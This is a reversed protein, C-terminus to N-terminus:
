TNKIICLMFVSIITEIVNKIYMKHLYFKLLYRKSERWALVTGHLWLINYRILIIGEFCLFCIFM